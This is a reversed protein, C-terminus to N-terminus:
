RSRALAGVTDTSDFGIREATAATLDLKAGNAFPGRDVVPVTVTRGHYLLAVKTGCPLTKHAVGLLTKSMRQGCATEHGYFGPGYWTAKVPTYVTVDLEPATGAAQAGSSDIRARVRAPGARDPKWRAAFTGDDTATAYVIPAWQSEIEDYREIAVVRGAPATGTFRKARGVMGRPSTTLTVDGDNYSTGGSGDARAPAPAAAVALLSLLLIVRLARM